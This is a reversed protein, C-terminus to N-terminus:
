EIFAAQQLTVGGIVVPKKPTLPKDPKVYKRPALPPRLRDHCIAWYVPSLESGIYSRKLKRAVIATTGVGMFPDYVIGPRTAGNCTCAPKLGKDTPSKLDETKTTRSNGTLAVKGSKRNHANWDKGNRHYEVERVYPAGCVACVKEPCGALIMPTILAEPYTAFHEIKSPQTPISWVSRKIREEGTDNSVSNMEPNKRRSDGWQGRKDGAYIAPELIATQDYWYRESKTLMFVFEHARTCRDAASNPMPNTKHWIIEDRWYWGDDQLAFVLRHPQGCLDKPKLGNGVTSFPKDHFTRNDGGAEKTGKASRGNVSSAYSDGMNIFCVGDPRLIRRIERFLVVQAAIFEQLTPEIGMQQDKRKAGCKPCDGGVIKTRSSGGNRSQLDDDAYDRRPAHDCKPDGGEWDATGYDRLGWYPPSTIVCNVSNDPMEQALKLADTNHVGNLWYALPARAIQLDNM